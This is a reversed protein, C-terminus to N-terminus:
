GALFYIVSLVIAIILVTVLLNPASSPAEKQWEEMPSEIDIKGIRFKPM